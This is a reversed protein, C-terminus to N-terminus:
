ESPHGISELFQRVHSWHLAQGVPLYWQAAETKAFPSPLLQRAINGFLVGAVRLTREEILPAGSMGEIAPISVELIKARARMM